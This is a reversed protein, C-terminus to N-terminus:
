LHSTRHLHNCLVLRLFKRFIDQQCLLERCLGHRCIQRGSPDQESPLSSVSIRLCVPMILFFGILDIGATDNNRYIDIAFFFLPQDVKLILCVVMRCLDLWKTTSSGTKATRDTVRKGSTSIYILCHTHCTSSIRSYRYFFGEFTFKRLLFQDSTCSVAVARITVLDTQSGAIDFFDIMRVVNCFTHLDTGNHTCSRSTGNDTFVGIRSIDDDKQSSTGATVTDTTCCTRGLYM